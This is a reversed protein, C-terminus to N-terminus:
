QNGEVRRLEGWNEGVEIDVLVPVKLKVIEEMIKKIQTAYEAVKEKKVEFVLEDHVQLLMRCECSREGSLYEETQIMALKILDAASGQLPTNVAMREAAKAVQPVSSNIEPLYRRRGFITEVFGDDRAKQNMSEIYEKIKGFVEFYHEIFKKAEEYSINATQSLGRAGQGYLVGFNIAKAERRLNDPVDEVKLNHIAAATQAHIDHGNQFFKIMNPDGSLHAALRLEIQSYDLSLLVWGDPARFAKRIKKGLDTRVPINQLNPDQSSLRGTATITQNLSTHLRGTRVNVLKPLSEIYTSLLKALERHEQILPIIPHLNHLKALEDAATSLGTKTRTIKDTPIKLREFLVRRLQQTSKVNFSEGATKYIERTLNDLRASLDTKMRMLYPEDLVIGRQEMKALVPVLPMEIKLFLDFLHQDKLKEELVARLRWTFDADECSYFGLKDADVESFKLKNKGKGLLDEKNIKTHNFHAFTLSDLNHAMTGPNLLYSAVRTDFAVGLINVGYNLLVAIDYKINHGIKAIKENEFVPRLEEIWHNVAQTKGDTYNFLNTETPQPKPWVLYRAEGDCWSFSIGLIECQWPDGSTAEIDFCFEKQKKLDKLFEVFEENTKILRYDFSKENRAFKDESKVTGKYVERLRPALSHFELSSLFELAKEFDFGGFRALSLDFDFEVDLRIRALDQSLFAKEKDDRLLKLVRPKIKGEDDAKKGEIYQYLKELTKFERLLETATKEGIGRVGPINDSPDGRLAKYDVMQDPTLSYREVVAARDYIKHELIGRSMAYVKTHPTILQLTDMDGTLIIKEVTVDTKACITGIVDDAEVGAIAFLPVGLVEAAKKILPLQSYFEDPQKVRHAKYEKYTEHRFTPGKEDLALVIHDPKLERVSKFFATLFGYVANVIQGDKTEMTLPLAHFSRHALASGDIIM